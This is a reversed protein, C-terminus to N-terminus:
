YDLRIRISLDTEPNKEIPRSTKAVALLDGNGDLLGVTTVYAFPNNTSGNIAIINGDADTYTPNSSYNLQNPAARCFILSSNIITENRFTLASSNGDGFRSECFHDVIQDITGSVWFDPYLKGQFLTKGTDLGSLVSADAYFDADTDDIIDQTLLPLALPNTLQWPPLTTGAAPSSNSDAASADNAVATLGGPIFVTTATLDTDAAAIELNAAGSGSPRAAEAEAADTYVPYFYKDPNSTTDKVVWPGNKATVEANSTSDILGRIIQTGNFAREVDLVIIGKDYYILGVANGAANSLTSVEGAVPSIEINTVGKSDDYIVLSNGDTATANFNDNLNDIQAGFVETGDEAAANIVELQLKSANKSLRIGFSGKFMNDRTFLRRFCIFLAADIRKADNSDLVPSAVAELGHPAVFSASADGLLTQAFQRYLSVKERLMPKDTGMGTLKGGADVSLTQGNVVPSEPTTMDAYSGITIDFLANSTGFTHDQDFVTQYLSSTIPHLDVGGSVFVQYSKRTNDGSRSASDAQVIDVLQQVSTKSTNINSSDISIFSGVLEAM